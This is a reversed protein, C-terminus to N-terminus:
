FLEDDDDEIDLEHVEVGVYIKDEEDKPSRQTIYQSTQDFSEPIDAYVIPKYGDLQKHSTRLEGNKIIGYDPM